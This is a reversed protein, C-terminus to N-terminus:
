IQSLKRLIIIERLLSRTQHQTEQSLNQILKIAVTKGTKLQKAKAVSGFSGEGM